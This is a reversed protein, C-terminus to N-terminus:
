RACCSACRSGPCCRWRWCWRPRAGCPISCSRARCPTARTSRDRRGPDARHRADLRRVGAAAPRRHAGATGRYTPMTSACWRRISTPARSSPRCRRCTTTAPCRIRWPHRHGQLLHPGAHRDRLQGARCLARQGGGQRRRHLGARGARPHVGAALPRLCPRRRGACRPLGLRCQDGGAGGASDAALAAAAGRLSGCRGGARRRCGRDHQRTGAAPLRPRAVHHHRRRGDPVRTSSRACGTSISRSRTPAPTTTWRSCKTSCSTRRCWAARRARDASGAGRARAADAGAARRRLPVHALRHRLAARRLAADAGRQGPQPAAAGQRASRTRGARVAQGPLRRRGPEPGAGPRELGGRATLILVPTRGHRRARAPPAAGGPRGDEAPDPRPDGARLGPHAAPRRRRRREIAFEVTLRADQLAQGIWRSLELHDEVLLIRMPAPISFPLQFPLGDYRQGMLCSFDSRLRVEHMRVAKIMMVWFERQGRQEWAVAQAHCAAKGTEGCLGPVLACVVHM